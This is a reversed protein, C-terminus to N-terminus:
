HVSFFHSLCIDLPFTFALLFGSATTEGRVWPQFHFFEEVNIGQGARLNGAAMTSCAATVTLIVFLGKTELRQPNSSLHNRKRPVLYEPGFSLRKTAM